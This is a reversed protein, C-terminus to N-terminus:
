VLWRLDPKELDLRAAADKFEERWEFEDRHVLTAYAGRGQEGEPIEREAIAIAEKGPCRTLVAHYADPDNKWLQHDTGCQGCITAKYQEWEFLWDRDEDLFLPEGPAPLPRGLLISRPVEYREALRM